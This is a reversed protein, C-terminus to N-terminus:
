SMLEASKVDLSELLNQKFKLDGHICNAKEDEQNWEPSKLAPICTQNYYHRTLIWLHIPCMFQNNHQQHHVQKQRITEFSNISRHYSSRSDLSVRHMEINAWCDLKQAVSKYVVSAEAWEEPCSKCAFSHEWEVVESDDAFWVEFGQSDLLLNFM